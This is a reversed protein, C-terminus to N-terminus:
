WRIVIKRTKKSEKFARTLANLGDGSFKNEELFLEKVCSTVIAKALAEVGRDMIENEELYLSELICNSENSSATSDSGGSNNNFNSNNRFNQSGGGYNYSSNNNSLIYSNDKKNYSNSNDPNNSGGNSSGGVRGVSSTTKTLNGCKVVGSIADALAIAGENTVQNNSLDLIRIQSRRSDNYSGCNSNRNQYFVKQDNNKRSNSNRTIRSSNGNNVRYYGSLNQAVAKVGSDGGAIGSAYFEEVLSGALGGALLTLGPPGIRVNDDVSLVRLQSYRLFRSLEYASGEGLNCAALTLSELRRAQLLLTRTGVDAIGHNSTFDLHKLRRASQIAQAFAPIAAHTIKNDTLILTELSTILPLHQSLAILSLDTLNTFSLNLHATETFKNGKLSLNKLAHCKPIMRIAISSLSVDTLLNENLELTELHRWRRDM